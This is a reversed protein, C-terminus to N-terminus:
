SFSPEKAIQAESSTVSISAKSSREEPSDRQHQDWYTEFFAWCGWLDSNSRLKDSVDRAQATIADAEIRRDSSAYWHAEIRDVSAPFFSLQNFFSFHLISQKKKLENMQKNTVQLDNKLSTIESLLGDFKFHSAFNEHKVLKQKERM